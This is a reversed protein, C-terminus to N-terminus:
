FFGITVGFKIVFTPDQGIDYNEFDIFFERMLGRRSLRAGLGASITMAPSYDSFKVAGLGGEIFLSETFDAEFLGGAVVGQHSDNDQTEVSLVGLRPLVRFGGTSIFTPTWDTEPTLYNGGNGGSLYDASLRFNLWENKPPSPINNTTDKIDDALAISIGTVSLLLIMLMM